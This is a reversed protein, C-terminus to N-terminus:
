YKSETDVHGFHWLGHYHHWETYLDFSSTRATKICAARRLTSTMTRWQGPEASTFLAKKSFKLSTRSCAAVNAQEITTSPSTLMGMSSTALGCATLNWDSRLLSPRIWFTDVGVRPACMSSTMMVLDLCGADTDFTSGVQVRPDSM